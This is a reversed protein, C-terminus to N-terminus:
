TGKVETRLMSRTSNRRDALGKRVWRVMKAWRNADVDDTDMNLEKCVMRMIVASHTFLNVNLATAFKVYDFVKDRGVKEVRVRLSDKTEVVGNEEMSESYKALRETDRLKKALVGPGWKKKLTKIDKVIGEFRKSPSWDERLHSPDAEAADGLEEGENDDESDTSDEEEESSNRRGPLMRGAGGGGVTAQGADALHDQPNRRRQQTAKPVAPPGAANGRTPEVLDTLLVDGDGDYIDEEEEDDDREEEEEPEKGERGQDVAAEMPDGDSDSGDSMVASRRAKARDELAKRRTIGPGAARPVVYKKTLTRKGKAKTAVDKGGGNLPLQRGKRSKTTVM